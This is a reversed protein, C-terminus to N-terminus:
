AGVGLKGDIVPGGISGRIDRADANAFPVSLNGTWGTLSPRASTVNILGGLANRGFLASQPGRVFEVQSVDMLDISASNANLQPVGDYYATVSPNSPSAGIGRFRVNSLKRPTFETFQANPAYIGADSIIQVGANRLIGESVATLSVPLTQADAPEKQATVTLIPLQFSAVPQSPAQSNSQQARVAAPILAALFAIVITSARLSRDTM